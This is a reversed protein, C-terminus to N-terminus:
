AGLICGGFSVPPRRRRVLLLGARRAAAPAPLVITGAAFASSLRPQQVHLLVDVGNDAAIKSLETDRACGGAQIRALADLEDIYAHELMTDDLRETEVCQILSPAAVDGFVMVCHLRPKLKTQMAPDDIIRATPKM